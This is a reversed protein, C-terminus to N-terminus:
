VIPVRHIAEFIDQHQMSLTLGMSRAKAHLMQRFASRNISLPLAVEFVLVCESTEPSLRIAKLNEINVNQGAFIGSIVAIIDPQDSGYVTIVFPESPEGFFAQRADMSRATVSLDMGKEELALSVVRQIDEPTVGEPSSVIFISAFQGKLITQSLEEINCSEKSLSDAIAHVVGPCDRGIVSIVTHSM